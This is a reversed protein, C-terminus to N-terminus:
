RSVPGVPRPSLLGDREPEAIAASGARHDRAIRAALRAALVDAHDVRGGCAPATSPRPSM